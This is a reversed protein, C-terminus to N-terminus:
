RMDSDFGSGHLQDKSELLSSSADDAKPVDAFSSGGDIDAPKAQAVGM